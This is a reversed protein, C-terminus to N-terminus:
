IKRSFVNGGVSQAAQMEKIMHQCLYERRALAKQRLQTTEADFIPGVHPTSKKFPSLTTTHEGKLNKDLDPKKTPKKAPKKFKASKKL